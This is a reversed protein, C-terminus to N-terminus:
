FAIDLYERVTKALELRASYLDINTKCLTRVNYVDSIDIVVFVRSTQELTIRCMLKLM